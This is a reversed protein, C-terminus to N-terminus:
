VAVGIWLLGCCVMGRLLNSGRGVRALRGVCCGGVAVSGSSTWLLCACGGWLLGVAGLGHLSGRRYGGTRQVVAIPELELAWGLKAESESAPCSVRCPASM